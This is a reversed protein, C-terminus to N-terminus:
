GFKETDRRRIRTHSCRSLTKTGFSGFAVDAFVQVRRFSAYNCFWAVSFLLINFFVKAQITKISFSVLTEADANIPLM